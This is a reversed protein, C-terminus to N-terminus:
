FNLGFVKMTASFANGVGNLLTITSTNANNTMFGKQLIASSTNDTAGQGFISKISNSARGALTYDAIFKDTNSIQSTLAFATGTTSAIATNSMTTWGYVASGVSNVRLLLSDGDANGTASIVVKILDYSTTLTYIGTAQTSITLEGDYKYGQNLPNVLGDVYTKNTLDNGTAPIASSQPLVTFAKTGSTISQNTTLDVFDNAVPNMLQFATGNYQLQLLQGSAIDGSLVVTSGDLKMISRTGLSSVNVTSAGTNAHTTKLYVVQGTTYAILAPTPAIVYANTSGTDIIYDSTLTSRLVTTNVALSAGTSGTATRADVQAQTPLQVIGKVGTTANPAGSIATDDVYKKTALQEDDTPAPTATDMRPYNPNTFTWTGTITEDDNKASLKDYFGATNSIVFQAGGPHSTALGSTQTYPSVTLVTSVGTLTATGNSNQTIGTFAIQEEQIGNGPEITGFGTSGFDTMTLVTGDIQTLASLIITTDGLSSGAGALTTPQNQVFKFNDAM